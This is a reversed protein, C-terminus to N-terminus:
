FKQADALSVATGRGIRLLVLYTIGLLLIVLPRTVGFVALIGRLELNTEFGLIPFAMICVYIVAAMLCWTWRYKPRRSVRLWNRLQKLLDLM